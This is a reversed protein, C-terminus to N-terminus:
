PHFADVVLDGGKLLPLGFCLATPAGARLRRGPDDFEADSGVASGDLDM